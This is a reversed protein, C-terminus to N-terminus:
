LESIDFLENLQEETMKSILTEGPKIVADIMMKKKEQLKFIKEEITGKTILKMVHVSNKQGIRYARDTAQEEVAPNWWPDFHIVTDAGTLNLGTGGAKLSILFVSGKGNNFGNVLKGREEVHTSGDLYLYEINKNKLMDKIIALMSTFQSFLLIRHGSDISDDIIEELLGLKGSKGKYNEIFVSPHCCIQRLRTLGSLIKIHSRGFGKKKIEDDIEGKINKLYALYIKKQQSTLEASLKHEIKEPLEKLVDKKLRRLIFPSIQKRLEKIAKKDKNKVIPREFKKKFRNHSLLYFPMIFDFISWLETLSNEIPTGTLAFRKKANIQKASKANQSASNKIHQAEDLICYEFLFEKYLSIDRRILPYSTILIDYNEINKLLEIRKNKNGSIIMVKLNPTFKEVEAKWNYLLSTPAIILSKTKENNEKESSLVTLIQLTKGLGMDDALIGGLGYSSLTKIWKYGFQQYERLVGSIEKPVQYDIDGPETINQVLEKFMLDRKINHLGTDKLKNDLYLARFKPLSIVDKEFDKKDLDLYDVIESIDELEDMDLPLYSGDKLKYYKKKEKLSNFVDLLELNSIGEISFNFELMDNDSNIRVGGSFSSTDKVNLKKFAESYYLESVEQLKKIGEFVFDFIKEEEDLHVSNNNVKFQYREFLNIIENEREIARILIRSDKNEQTSRNSFPNLTEDGYVFKVNAVITDEVKDFYIQPRFEPKYFLDEVKKDVMVDGINQIFPFVESIFREKFKSPITITNSRNEICANYIPIFNEKQEKSIRHILGNCFFYELDSVLPVLIGKGDIKFSLDNKEKTLIFELPLDTNTIKVNIYEIGFISANFNRGKLIGFFRNLKSRTFNVKKGSFASTNNYKYSNNKLYNEGEYIEKLLDIIPQDEKKFKHINPDFTFQKGYKIKEHTQLSELLKKISKVVYLKDLGIRMTLFSAEDLDNIYGSPEFDYTIEINVEEKNISQNFRYYNLINAVISERKYKEFEGNEDKQQIEKLVAVVHKCQGWYKDHAPCTCTASAFDGYSNFRIKVKYDKTGSVISHFINNQSDFMLSKIRGTDQYAIGRAYTSYYGCIGEILDDNINFM